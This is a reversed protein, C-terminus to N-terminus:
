HHFEVLPGHDDNFFCPLGYNSTPKDIPCPHEIPRFPANRKAIVADYPSPKAPGLTLSPGEQGNFKNTLCQAKEKPSLREFYQGTCNYLYRGLAGIDGQPQQEVAPPSPELSPVTIARPTEPALFTPPVVDTPRQPPRRAAEPAIPLSITIEHAGLVQEFLQPKFAALLALLVLIHLLLVIGGAAARRIRLEAQM